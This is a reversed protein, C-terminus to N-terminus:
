IPKSADSSSDQTATGAATATPPNMTTIRGQNIAWLYAMVSALVRYAEDHTIDKDLKRKYLEQVAAIGKENPQPYHHPHEAPFTFPKKRQPRYPQQPQHHQHPM